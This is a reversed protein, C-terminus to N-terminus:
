VQWDRMHWGYEIPGIHGLKVRSDCYLKYGARKARLCFALDEGLKNIPCFPPGFREWLDKLMRTSVMCAGFGAAQVQFLRNDPIDLDWPQADVKLETPTEEYELSKYIVPLLPLQRKFALGCVFDLGKDMDEAFRIMMDSDFRMDSDIWLVRDYGENIAMAAHENRSEYILSGVTFSLATAGVREMSVLSTVTRTPMTEMCPMAILTKM